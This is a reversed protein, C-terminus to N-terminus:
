GDTDIVPFAVFGSVDAAAAGLKAPAPLIEMGEKYPIDVPRGVAVLRGGVVFESSEAAKANKLWDVDSGYFLAVVMRDGDRWVNLPTEYRTGTSRGIHHLVGFGPLHRAFPRAVKNTVVRNLRALGEPFPM